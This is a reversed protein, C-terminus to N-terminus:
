KVTIRHLLLPSIWSPDYPADFSPNQTYDLLSASDEIFTPSFPSMCVASTTPGAVIPNTSSAIATTSNCSSILADSLMSTTSPVTDLTNCNPLVSSALTFPVASARTVQVAERSDSLTAFGDSEVRSTNVMKGMIFSLTKQLEEFTKEVEMKLETYQKTQLLCLERLSSIGVTYM